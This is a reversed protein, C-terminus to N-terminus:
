KLLHESHDAQLITDDQFVDAMWAKKVLNHKRYFYIAVLISV